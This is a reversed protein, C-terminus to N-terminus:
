EGVQDRDLSVLELYGEPVLAHGEDGGRAVIAWGVGGGRGIVRVIQDEELAMEATGEPEFAYLARYLGPLLPHDGGEGGTGAGYDDHDNDDDDDDDDLSEYPDDIEYEPSAADTFNRAFDGQSPGDGVGGPSSDSGRVGFWGLRGLGWNSFLYSSGGASAGASDDHDESGASSASSASWTSLPRQLRRNPRPTLPGSGTHRVDEDPFAFDRIKVVLTSAAVASTSARHVAQQQPQQQLHSPTPTTPSAVEGDHATLFSISGPRSRTSSHRSLITSARCSNAPSPPAPRSSSLSGSSSRLSSRLSKHSDLPLKPFDEKATTTVFSSPNSTSCDDTSPDQLGSLPTSPSASTGSVDDDSASHTNLKSKLTDEAPPQSAINLLKATLTITAQGNMTAKPDPMASELALGNSNSSGEGGVDGSDSWKDLTPHPGTPTSSSTGATATVTAPAAGIIPHTSAAPEHDTKSGVNM